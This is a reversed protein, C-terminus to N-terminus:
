RRGARSPVSRRRQLWLALMALAGPWLSAAARSSTAACGDDSASLTITNSPPGENGAADVPVVRVRTSVRRASASLVFKGLSDDDPEAFAPGSPSFVRDGDVIDIRYAMRAESTRDDFSAEELRVVLVSESSCDTSGCGESADSYYASGSIVPASTPPTVDESDTISWPHTIWYAQEPSCARAQASPWSVVALALALVKTRLRPQSM